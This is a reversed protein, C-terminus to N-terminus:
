GPTGPIVKQVQLGFIALQVALGCLLLGFIRMVVKFIEPSIWAFIKEAFLLTILNGAM